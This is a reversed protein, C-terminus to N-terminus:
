CATWVEYMEASYPPPRSEGQVLAIHAKNAASLFALCLVSRNAWRTYWRIRNQKLALHKRLLLASALTEADARARLPRERVSRCNNNM